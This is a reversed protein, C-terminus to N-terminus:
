LAMEEELKKVSGPLAETYVMGTSLNIVQTDTVGSKKALEKPTLSNSEMYENLRDQFPTINNNNVQSQETKPESKCKDTAKVPTRDNKALESKPRAEPPAGISLNSKGWKLFEKQPKPGMDKWLKKLRTIPDTASVGSSSSKILSKAAMRISDAKNNLVQEVVKKQDSESLDALVDLEVGSDSIEPKDRILDKVKKTIKRARAVDREITKLSGGMKKATDEAFSLNDNASGHKAMAGAVGKKTEPHLEEYILKRKLFHDGRDLKSLEARFLNEDIELLKSELESQSVIKVEISTKGLSKTAELRHNGAILMYQGDSQERVTIPNILGYYKISDALFTVADQNLSRLREGVQIKDICLTQLVPKQVQNSIISKNSDNTITTEVTKAQVGGVIGGLERSPNTNISKM